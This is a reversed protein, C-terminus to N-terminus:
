WTQGFVLSEMKGPWEPHATVVAGVESATLSKKEILLRAVEDIATRYVRVIGASQCVADAVLADIQDKYRSQQESSVIATGDGKDKAGCIGVTAMQQVVQFNHQYADSQQCRPNVDIEAVWGSVLCIMISLASRGGDDQSKIGTVANTFGLSTSGDPLTRPLIDVGVLPVGFIVCAVACGAEHMAVHSENPGDDVLMRQSPPKGPPKRAM